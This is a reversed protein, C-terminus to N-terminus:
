ALASAASQVPEDDVRWYNLIGYASGEGADGIWEVRVYGQGVVKVCEVLPLRRPPLNIKALRAGADILGGEGFIIWFDIVGESSIEDEAAFSVANRAGTIRKKVQM